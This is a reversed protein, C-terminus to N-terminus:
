YIWGANREVRLCNDTTTAATTTPTTAMGARLEGEASFVLCFYRVLKTKEKQVRAM